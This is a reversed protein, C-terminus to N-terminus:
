GAIAGLQTSCTNPVVTADAWAATGESHHDTGTSPPVGFCSVCTYVNAKNAARLGSPCYMTLKLESPMKTIFGSPVPRVLMTSAPAPMGPVTLQTGYVFDMIRTPLLPLGMVLAVLKRQTRIRPLAKHPQEIVVDAGLLAAGTSGVNM